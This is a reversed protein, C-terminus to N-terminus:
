LAERTALYANALAVPFKRATEDITVIGHAGLRRLTEEREMQYDLAALYGLSSELDHIPQDVLQDLAQERLSALIVLHRRRLRRLPEVLDDGDEGRLNTLLVIMARKRQHRLLDEAAESFDSPFPATEYDYLHNLVTTMHHMGKVPPLWRRTGGFGLIGVQDGQRLALYSLFLLSNLTRDFQSLEGDMARMRRGGDLMFIITQDRQEQYDRSILEQRKASAKWDIQSLADGQHYERLQHFDKSLGARNKRVIGSLEQRHELALLAYRVLPQYNPYVKTTSEGGLLQFREWLRLPASELIQAPAFTFEGRESFALEYALEVYGKGALRGSWPLGEAESVAPTGDIFRIRRASSLENVLRVRVRAPVGLAFRGPVQRELRIKRRLLVLTADLLAWVLLLVGAGAWLW